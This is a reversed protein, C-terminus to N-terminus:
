GSDAPRCTGTVRPIGPSRSGPRAGRVGAAPLISAVPQPHGLGVGPARPLGGQVGLALGPVRAHGGPRPRMPASGPLTVTPLEARLRQQSHSQPHPVGTVAGCPWPWRGIYSLVTAVCPPQPVLKEPHLLLKFLLLPPHGNPPPSRPRAETPLATPLPSRGCCCVAPARTVAARHLASGGGGLLGATRPARVRLDGWGQSHRAALGCGRIM